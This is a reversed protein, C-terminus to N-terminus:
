SRTIMARWYRHIQRTIQLISVDDDVVLITEGSGLPIAPVPEDPEQSQPRSLAPLYIDFRTGIGEASDFVIFGNHGRVITHVTSLGLGTGKGKEKTTFFPDFIRDQIGVPIGAGEDLVSLM